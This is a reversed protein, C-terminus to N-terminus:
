GPPPSQRRGLEDGRRAPVRRARSHATPGATGVV